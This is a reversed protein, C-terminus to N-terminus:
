AKYKMQRTRMINTLSCGLGMLFVLVTTIKARRMTCIIPAKLPWTIALFRDFAMVVLIWPSVLVGMLFSAHYYLCYPKKVQTNAFLSPAIVLLYRLVMRGYIYLCDAAALCRMYFCTTSKDYKKQSMLLFSLFNGFLGAMALIPPLPVTMFLIAIDVTHKVFNEETYETWTYSNTSVNSINGEEM